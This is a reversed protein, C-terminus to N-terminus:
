KGADMRRLEDGLFKAAPETRGNAYRIAYAEGSTSSKSAIQDIFERASNVHEGMKDLKKRLFDAAEESSYDRSNRIFRVDKRTQVYRILRDIRAREAPPLAATAASAALGAAALLLVDRRRIM